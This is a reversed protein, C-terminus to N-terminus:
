FSLLPRLPPLIFRTDSDIYVEMLGDALIQVGGHVGGHMIDYVLGYYWLVLLFAILSYVFEWESIGRPREGEM